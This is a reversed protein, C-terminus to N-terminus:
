SRVAAAAPVRNAAVREERPPTAQAGSGIEVGLDEALLRSSIRASEFIVPLGSGPHTGGGVLYVSDLDEFRNRPRLHLMQDLSHALNFTAGKYIDYDHEWNAPTLVRETLVRDELDGLGVEALKAYVRRRFPERDRAWDVNGHQHTVPVLVYLASHGEPALTPDTVSPNQVYFSPNESLRHDREIDTLNREYDDALFITHHDLDVEGEVGLYLMFTSCSYKKKALKRDTWRRRKADPVLSKMAHAFDANVVLADAEYIRRATRVGTARRGSFLVEEVPEGLRIEAGLEEALRAMTRTVAGCGGTPHFVGYEYEIFSLITFLSPCQFPSMGLYKSQFSFALRVRPDSFHRELDRDVSSGPRMLPLLKLLPLRLTDALSNFPNELIPKFADLKARNDRMYPEVGAADAPSIKGIEAALRELDPTARLRAGDEFRLTYQPDLRTMEVEDDLDYGCSEFVSRLVQPYLFFTPGLDFRFGEDVLTTTRGGVEDQKEIVTVDLGASALLMASALGGPGAGVIVVRKGRAKTPYRLVNM